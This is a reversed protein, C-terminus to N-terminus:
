GRDIARLLLFIRETASVIECRNREISEVLIKRFKDKDTRSNVNFLKVEGDSWGFVEACTSCVYRFDTLPYNNSHNSGCRPCLPVPTILM